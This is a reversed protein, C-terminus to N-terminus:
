RRPQRPPWPAIQRIASRDTLTMRDYDLGSLLVLVGGEPRLLPALLQPLPTTRDGRLAEFRDRWDAPFRPVLLGAHFETFPSRDAGAAEDLRRVALIRGEASLYVLPNRVLDGAATLLLNSAIKRCPPM